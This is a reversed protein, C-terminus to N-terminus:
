PRRHCEACLRQSPAPMVSFPPLPTSTHLHSSSTNTRESRPKSNQSHSPAASPLKSSLSPPATRRSAPHGHPHNRPLPLPHMGIRLPIALTARISSSPANARSSSTQQSRTGASPAAEASSFPSLLKPSSSKAPPLSHHYLPSVPVSRIMRICDGFVPIFDPSVHSM